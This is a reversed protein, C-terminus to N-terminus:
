IPELDGPFKSAQDREDEALERGMRHMSWARNLHAYVHALSVRFDSEDFELDNKIEVILQGLHEHADELEYLFSALAVPDKMKKFM